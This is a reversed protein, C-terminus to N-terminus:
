KVECAGGACAIEGQLDTNDDDEIVNRLDVSHLHKVKEEFEEKTIDEFPAQVYTHEDYPLFSLGSYHEKNKWLWEGVKEWEDDKITITASVNHTNDGSRHGPLVWEISFHKVRELLDIASTNKRTSANEPAKQPVRVIATDHPRFVCDELLEPHRIMLYVALPENKGFRMSRLYYDNHWDHIGSSCGLVLSSTGEPKLLTTRAAKNIGLMKAVRENEELVVQSAKKLDLSAVKGSAVGTMSVGILADKETTKRWIPRLYHFDTYSAQLTGIFTAAKAREELDEQNEVNSVNITSLNCFQFARLSAEVCPNFLFEKNNSFIIGPEGSKSLEVLKWLHQFDKKKIRHRLVVASNNARGRQPNKEWWSGTKASLMEEDDASFLSILAARRIGGALVCDAIHCIIDHVEIPRLQEGDNKEELISQVKALCIKLPEPGPAKGGSTILRAGKKRIDRFDFIPFAKGYFYANMLVKIADAWGEISDGILFRRTGYPKDKLPKRIPPLKEVHSNQVSFGVGSGGLLLFMIESFAEPADVPLACCNFLRSNNIEIPKGAFQFSRMSPLVKKEYVLKYANEIEECLEPFKNIHMAKNRDVIEEFTERRNKEPLHRAYKSFVVLKSLIDQELSLQHKNSM